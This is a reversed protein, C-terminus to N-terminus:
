GRSGSGFGATDAAGSPATDGHRNRDATGTRGGSHRITGLARDARGASRGNLQIDAADIRWRAAAAPHPATDADGSSSVVRRVAAIGAALSLLASGAIVAQKRTAWGGALAGLRGFLSPGANAPAAPKEAKEAHEHKDAAKPTPKHGLVPKVPADVAIPETMRS